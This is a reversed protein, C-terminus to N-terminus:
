QRIGANKALKALYDNDEDSLQNETSTTRNGTLVKCENLPVNKTEQKSPSFNNGASERLVVLHYKKFDENLKETPSAELLNEMIRKQAPNLPKVLESIIANRSQTDEMIRVKREILKKENEAESLKVNTEMLKSEYSKISENMQRLISNENYQKAHFENQFAEFLKRGFTNQKAEMIDQQFENMLKRQSEMMFNATSEAARKIFTAKAEDIRKRGEAVLKVRDEVLQRKETHFEQLEEALIKNSFTVFKQIGENMQNREQRMNKVEEALVKNAFSSFNGLTSQLKKRDEVLKSREDYVTKIESEIVVAVMKNLGEVLEKHDNTYRSKMEDRMEAAMQTKEEDWAERILGKAEDSMNSENLFKELKSM